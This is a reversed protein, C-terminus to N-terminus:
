NYVSHPHESMPVDCYFNHAEMFSLCNTPSRICFSENTSPNDDNTKNRKTTKHHESTIHNLNPAKGQLLSILNNWLTKITHHENYIEEDLIWIKAFAILLKEQLEQASTAQNAEMLTNKLQEVKEKLQMGNQTSVKECERIMETLHSRIKRAPWYHKGKSCDGVSKRKGKSVRSTKGSEVLETLESYKKQSLVQFLQNLKVVKKGRLRFEREGIKAREEESELSFYEEMTFCLGLLLLGNMKISGMAVGRLGQVGVVFVVV